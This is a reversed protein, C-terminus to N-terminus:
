LIFFSPITRGVELRSTFTGTAASSDASDDAESYQSKEEYQLRLDIHEINGVAIHAGRSLARDAKRGDERSRPGHYIWTM